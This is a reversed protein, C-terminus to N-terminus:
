FTLKVKASKECKEPFVRNEQFGVKQNKQMFQRTKIENDGNKRKCFVPSSHERGPKQRRGLILQGVERRRDGKSRLWGVPLIDYTSFDNL